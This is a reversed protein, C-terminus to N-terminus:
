HLTPKGCCHKYKKGSGCSCPDNRGIKKTHRHASHQSARDALTRRHPEFYRYIATIGAAARVILDERREASM